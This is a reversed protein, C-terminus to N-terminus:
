AFQKILIRRLQQMVFAYSKVFMKNHNEEPDIEHDYLEGYKVNKSFTPKFKKSDYPVWETFRYRKTRVSYGMYRIEKLRPKDSTKIPFDSPRPYQSFAFNFISPSEMNEIVKATTKNSPLPLM